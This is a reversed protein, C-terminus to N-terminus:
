DNEALKRILEINEKTLVRIDKELIEKECDGCIWDVKNGEWGPIEGVNLVGITELATLFSAGCNLCYGFKYNEDYAQSIMDDMDMGMDLVEVGPKFDMTEICFNKKSLSSAKEIADEESLANV